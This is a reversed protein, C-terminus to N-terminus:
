FKWRVVSRLAVHLVRHRDRALSALHLRWRDAWFTILERIQRVVASVRVEPHDAGIARPHSLDRELAIGGHGDANWSPRWGTIVDGEDEAAPPKRLQPYDTRISATHAPEDFAAHRGAPRRISLPEVVRGVGVALGVADLLNRQVTSGRNQDSAIAIRMSRCNSVSHEIVRCEDHRRQSAPVPLDTAGHLFLPRRFRNPADRPRAKRNRREVDM